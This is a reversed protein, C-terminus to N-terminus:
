LLFGSTTATPVASAPVAGVTAACFPASPAMSSIRTVAVRRSVLTSSM